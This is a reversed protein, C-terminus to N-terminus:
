AGEETTPKSKFNLRFAPMDLVGDESVLLTRKTEKPNELWYSDGFETRLTVPELMTGQEQIAKALWKLMARRVPQALIGVTSFDVIGQQTYANLALREAEKEKLIAKRMAAKEQSNDRVATKILRERYTRVRPPTEILYPSEGWISSQISDTTRQFDGVFHAYNQIGFVYSSLLHAEEIRSMNAFLKAFHAYEERRNSFQGVSELIAVAYRTIRRIIENTMFLITEMESSKGNQYLFFSFFSEMKGGILSHVEEYILLDQDLRPIQMEYQTIADVLASRTEQDITSLKHAIASGHGQLEKIFHRLYGILSEKYAFFSQSKMLEDAKASHWTRIYDQYNQNLKQFDSSLQSWWVGIEHPSIGHLNIDHHSPGQATPLLNDVKSLQERIRELLTPELSGGEIILNELRIAMREIEIAYETMQFRYQKNMFQQYTQVKATDQRAILNGWKQLSELDQQCHDITYGGLEIMAQENFCSNDVSTLELHVEDKNLWHQYRQSQEYFYRMISRYRWANEVSLYKTEPIQKTVKSQNTM